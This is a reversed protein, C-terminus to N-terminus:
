IYNQRAVLWIYLCSPIDKHSYSIPHYVVVSEFFLFAFMLLM